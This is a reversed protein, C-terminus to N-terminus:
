LNSACYDQHYGRRDHEESFSAVDASIKDKNAKRYEKM